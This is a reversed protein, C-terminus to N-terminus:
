SGLRIIEARLREHQQMVKLYRLEDNTSKAQIVRVVDRKEVTSWENLDPILSLVVSFDSFVNLQTRNWSATNMRLTRAVTKAAMRRVQQADGSFKAAMWKQVALGAKRIQFRDWDGAQKQNLEFIM